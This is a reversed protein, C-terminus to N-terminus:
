FNLQLGLLTSLVEDWKKGDSFRTSIKFYKNNPVFDQNCAWDDNNPDYRRAGILYLSYGGRTEFLGFNFAKISTKPKEKELLEYLWETLLKEFEEQNDDM